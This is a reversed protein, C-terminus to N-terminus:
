SVFVQSKCYSCVKLDYEQYTDIKQKCCPSIVPEIKNKITISEQKKIEEQDIM